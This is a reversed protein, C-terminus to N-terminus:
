RDDVYLYGIGTLTYGATTLLEFTLQYTIGDLGGSIVCQGGKSASDVAKSALTLDTTAGGPTAGTCTIAVVSAITDGAVIEPLASLDMIYLRQETKRKVLYTMTPYSWTPMRAAETWTTGRAPEQWQPHHRVYGLIFAGLRGGRSGLRGSPM